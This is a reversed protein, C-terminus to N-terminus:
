VEQGPNRNPKVKFPTCPPLTHRPLDKGWGAGHSRRASPYGCTVMVTAAAFMLALARAVHLLFLESDVQSVVGENCQKPLHGLALMLFVHGLGAECCLHGHSYTVLAWFSLCVQSLPSM